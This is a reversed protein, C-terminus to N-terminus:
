KPPALFDRAIFLVLGILSVLVVFANVRIVSRWIGEHLGVESCLTHVAIGLAILVMFWSGLQNFRFKAMSGGM